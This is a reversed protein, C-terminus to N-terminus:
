RASDKLVHKQEAKAFLFQFTSSESNKGMMQNRGIIPADSESLNPKRLSM